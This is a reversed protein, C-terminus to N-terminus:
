ISGIYFNFQISRFISNFSYPNFQIVIPILYFLHPSFQIFISILNFSYPNFQIFIVINFIAVNPKAYKPRHQGGFQKFMKCASIKLHTLQLFFTKDM